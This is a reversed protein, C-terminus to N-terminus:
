KELRTTMHLSRRRRRTTNKVIGQLVDTIMSLASTVEAERAAAKGDGESGKSPKRDMEPLEEFPDFSSWKAEERNSAPEETADQRHPPIPGAWTPQFPRSPASPQPEVEVGDKEGGLPRTTM